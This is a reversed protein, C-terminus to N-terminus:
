QPGLDSRRQPPSPNASSSSLVVKWQGGQKEWVTVYQGRNIRREPGQSHFVYTGWTFGMDAHAAISAEEPKWTMTGQQGAAMRVRITEKGKIPPEGERLLTADSALFEYFAEVAGKKESAASFALDRELLAAREAVTDIKATTREPRAPPREPVPAPAPITVPAPPTVVVPASQTANTAVQPAPAPVPAPAQIPQKVPPNTPQLVQPPKEAPRPAVRARLPTVNGYAKPSPM